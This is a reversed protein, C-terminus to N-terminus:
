RRWNGPGTGSDSLMRKPRRWGTCRTAPHQPDEGWQASAISPQQRAGIWRTHFSLVTARIRWPLFPCYSSRSHPSPRLPFPPPHPSPSMVAVNQPDLSIFTSPVLAGREAPRLRRHRSVGATLPSPPGTVGPGGRRGCGQWGAGAQCRRWGRGLVVLGTTGRARSAGAAPDCGLQGPLQRSSLESGGEERGRNPQLSARYWGGRRCLEAGRRGRRPRRAPARRRHPKKGDPVPATATGRRRQPPPSPAESAPQRPSAAQSPPPVSILPLSPSPSPPPARVEERRPKVSIDTFTTKSIKM